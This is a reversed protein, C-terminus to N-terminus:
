FPGSPHVGQAPFRLAAERKRAKRYWPWTLASPVPSLIPPAAGSSSHEAVFDQAFASPDAKIADPESVSYGTADPQSLPDCLHIKTHFRPPLHNKADSKRVQSM